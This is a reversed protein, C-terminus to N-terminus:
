PSALLQEAHQEGPANSPSCWYATSNPAERLLEQTAVMADSPRPSPDRAALVGATLQTTVATTVGPVEHLCLCPRVRLGMGGRAM